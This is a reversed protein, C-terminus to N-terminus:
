SVGSLSLQQRFPPLFFPPLSPLTLPLLLLSHVRAFCLLRPCVRASSRLVALAAEQFSLANMAHGATVSRSANFLNLLQHRCDFHEDTHGEAPRCIFRIGSTRLRVSSESSRRRTLPVILITVSMCGFGNAGPHEHFRRYHPQWTEGM